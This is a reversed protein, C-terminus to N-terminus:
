VQSELTGPRMDTATRHNSILLIFTCMSRLHGEDEALMERFSVDSEVRGDGAEVDCVVSEKAAIKLHYPMIIWMDLLPERLNEIIEAWLLRPIRKRLRRM